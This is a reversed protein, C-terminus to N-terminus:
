LNLYALYTNKHGRKYYHTKLGGTGEFPQMNEQGGVGGGGVFQSREM